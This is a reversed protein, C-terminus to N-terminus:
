RNEKKKQYLKLVLGLIFWFNDQKQWWYYYFHLNECAYVKEGHEINTEPENELLKRRVRTWQVVHNMTGRSSWHSHIQGDAPTSASRMDM